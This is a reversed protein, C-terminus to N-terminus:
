LVLWQKDLSLTYVTLTLVSRPYQEATLTLRSWLIRQPMRELEELYALLDSYSGGIRLEVGHKYINPANANGSEPSATKDDKKEAAREILFSPPLTHLSILELKPNRALLSELFAPMKEPPVMNGSLARLRADLVGTAKRTEQLKSRNAADPDRLASQAQVLAVEVGPLEAKVEAVRKAANTQRLLQPEVLISYGLFAIVFLLGGGVMLRERQALANFRAMLRLWQDKM